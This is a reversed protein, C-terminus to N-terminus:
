SSEKARDCPTRILGDPHTRALYAGITGVVVAGMIVLMPLMTADVGTEAAPADARGATWDRFSSRLRHPAAGVGLARAEALIEGARRSLPARRERRSKMRQAPITWEGGEIDM